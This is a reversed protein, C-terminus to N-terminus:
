PLENWPKDGLSIDIEQQQGHTVDFIGAQRACRNACQHLVGGWWLCEVLAMWRNPM